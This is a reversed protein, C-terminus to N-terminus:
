PKKLMIPAHNQKGSGGSEGSKKSCSGPAGLGAKLRQPYFRAAAALSASSLYSSPGQGAVSSEAVRGRKSRAPLAVTADM